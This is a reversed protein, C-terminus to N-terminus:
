NAASTAGYFLQDITRSKDFPLILKDPKIVGNITVPKMAPIEFRVSVTTHMTPRLQPSTIQFDIGVADSIEVLKLVSVNPNKNFMQSIASRSKGLKQALESQTLNIERMYSLLLNYFDHIIGWAKEEVDPPAAFFDDIEKISKKLNKSM